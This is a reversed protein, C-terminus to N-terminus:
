GSSLARADRADLVTVRITHLGTAGDPAPPATRATQVLGDRDVARVRLVHAGPTTVWRYRWQRWLDRSVEGSLVADRWPQADFQALFRAM